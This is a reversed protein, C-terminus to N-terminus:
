GRKPNQRAWGLKTQGAQSFRGGKNVDDILANMFVRLMKSGDPQQVVEQSGSAPQGNNVIQVGSFSNGGSKGGAAPNYKAPTVSEGKHLTARMGDYPVYNTGDALAVGYDASPTYGHGGADIGYGQTDFASFGSLGSSGTTVSIQALASAAAQAASTMTVLASSATQTATTQTVTSSVVNGVSAQLSDLADSATQSDRAPSYGSAAVDIGEGKQASPTGSRLFQGVLGNGDVISRFGGKLAQELPDSIFTKTLIQQATKGLQKIADSGTLSGSAINDFVGRYATALEDAGTRLRNIAPDVADAAKAYQLALDEAFAKIKPDTSADALTRAKDALEGLQVLAAARIQYVGTDLELQNAGGQTARLVYAEEARSADATAVGLRRQVDAFENAAAIAREQRALDEATVVSGSGATSQAFLRAAAIAQQARLAAAGAEDGELQLLNARYEVVQDSLAKRAAFEEQTALVAAQSADRQVRASRAVSDNLQTQLATREHPDKFAGRELEVELRAQEDTLANLEAQVGTETIRRREDFYTTLSVAGGAYISQLVQQNFQLADRQQELDDKTTKLDQDLLAKRQANSESQASTDTFKKKLAALADAQQDRTFPTGADANDKFAQKLKTLEAQYQSAAKGENLFSTVLDKGAIARQTVAAREAVSAAANDQTIKLRKLEAVYEEASAIDQPKTAAIQARRQPDLQTQSVRETGVNRLAEVAAQADKIKDEITASRGIDYASDWFSSWANKGTRLVREIIGLNQELNSFRKNLADYVIGQADAARGQDQLSKIQDYQAATLFNLQRNHETAWKAVDQGMQAYDQAVEKANKGTAEGYKAAAATAAELALPGVQGTSILAQGFERAAAISVQGSAAVNKALQNFQGETKGAYGGTLAIADAFDKSQKAGEYWAYGLAGVAGVTAGIALRAPTLASVIGKALGSVGGEIQAVQGSQQLFVTGFSAGSGLSAVVDSVTYKLTQLQQVSLAAAKGVGATAAQVQALGGTAPRTASAARIKDIYAAAADSVGLQAARMELLEVRTKGAEASERQLSKVFTDAARAMRAQDRELIQAARGSDGAFQALGLNLDITLSALAM